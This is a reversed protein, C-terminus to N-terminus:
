HDQVAQPPTRRSILIFPLPSNVCGFSPSSKTPATIVPNPAGTTPQTFPALTTSHSVRESSYTPTYPLGVGPALTPPLTQACGRQCCCAAVVGLWLLRLARLPSIPAVFGM